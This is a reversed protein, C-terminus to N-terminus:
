PENVADDGDQLSARYEDLRVRWSEVLASFTFNKCKELDVEVASRQQGEGRLSYVAQFFTEYGDVPGFFCPTDTMASPDDLSLAHWAKLIPSPLPADPPLRGDAVLSRIGLDLYIMELIATAVKNHGVQGDVFVQAKRDLLGIELLLSPLPGPPPLPTGVSTETVENSPISTERLM